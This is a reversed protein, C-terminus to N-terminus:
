RKESMVSSSAMVMARSTHARILRTLRRSFMPGVRSRSTVRLYDPVEPQARTPKEAAADEVAASSSVPPPTPEAAHKSHKAGNKESHKAAMDEATEDVASPIAYIRDRLAPEVQAPGHVVLTLIQHCSAVEALHRDSEVCVKEFDPM